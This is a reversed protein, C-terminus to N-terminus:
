NITNKESASNHAETANKGTADNHCLTSVSLFQPAHCFVRPILIPRAISFYKLFCCLGIVCSHTTVVTLCRIDSAFLSVNMVPHTLLQEGILAHPRVQACSAIVLAGSVSLGAIFAEKWSAKTRKSFNDSTRGHGETAAELM